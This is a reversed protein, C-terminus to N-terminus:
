DQKKRLAYKLGGQIGAGAVECHNQDAFVHEVLSFGDYNRALLKAAMRRIDAIEEVELDGVFYYVRAPLAKHAQAYAEEQRFVFDGGYSVSPSGLILTEFLDPTTFLGYLGFLGGFSHGVLIRRASDARYTQEIFPILEDRIFQHFGAADGNPVPRSFTASMSKETAEDRVPTLDHCRRMLSVRFAERPDDGEPYGIGVVIADTTSDCLRMPRIIETVLGSYWNGDLVYVTTWKDPLDNFPWDEGAAASYGLPLSVTIRYTRGTSRSDLMHMESGLVTVPQPM